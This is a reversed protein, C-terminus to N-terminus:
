GKNVRVDEFYYFDLGTINFGTVYSQWAATAPPYCIFVHPADDLVTKQIQQYLM